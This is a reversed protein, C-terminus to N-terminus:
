VGGAVFVTAIMLAISVVICGCTVTRRRVLLPGAFGVVFQALMIRVCLESVRVEASTPEGFTFTELFAAMLALMIGVVGVCSALATVGIPTRPGYWPAKDQGQLGTM